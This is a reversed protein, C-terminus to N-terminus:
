SFRDPEDAFLSKMQVNKIDIYHETLANWASTETPNIKPLM